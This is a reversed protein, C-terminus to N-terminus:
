AMSLMFKGWRVVFLRNTSSKTSTNPNHNSIIPLRDCGNLWVPTYSTDSSDATPGPLRARENQNTSTTWWRDHGESRFRETIWHPLREAPWSEWQGSPVLVAIAVVLMSKGAVAPTMLAVVQVVASERSTKSCQANSSDAWYDTQRHRHVQRRKLPRSRFTGSFIVNM